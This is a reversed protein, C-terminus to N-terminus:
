ERSPPFGSAAAAAAPFIIKEVCILVSPCPHRFSDAILLAIPLQYHAAPFFAPYDLFDPLDPFDLHGSFATPFQYNATPL